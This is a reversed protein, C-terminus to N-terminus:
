RIWEAPRCRAALYAPSAVILTQDSGAAARDMEQHFSGGSRFDWPQLGVDHGADRAERAIWEAWARDRPNFSVWYRPM